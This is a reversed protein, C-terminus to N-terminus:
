DWFAPKEGTNIKIGNVYKVFEDIKNKIDPFYDRNIPKKFGYSFVKRSNLIDFVDNILQIFEATPVNSFEQIQIEKCFLLAQAVSKSFTQTPLGGKM